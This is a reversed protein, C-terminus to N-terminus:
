EIAVTVDRHAFVRAALWWFIVIEILVIPVFDWNGQWGAAFSYNMIERIVYDVPIAKSSASGLKWRVLAPMALLLSSAAAVLAPHLFTAFFLAVSGALAAALWAAILAPWFSIQFNFKLALLTNVIGVAAVYIASVMSIGLMLGAIYEGRYIGKSVVALIRRSKREGHISSFSVLLTYAVGFAAQQRFLALFDDVSRDPAFVIAAPIVVIWGLFVLLIIRQERVFNVAILWISKV